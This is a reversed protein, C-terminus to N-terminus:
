HRRPNLACISLSSQDLSHWRSGLDGHDGFGDEFREDVSGFRPNPSTTM